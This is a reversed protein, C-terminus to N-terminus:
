RMVGRLLQGLGERNYSAPKEASVQPLPNDPRGQKAQTGGHSSTPFTHHEDQTHGALSPETVFHERGTLLESEWTVVFM